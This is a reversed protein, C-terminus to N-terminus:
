LKDWASPSPFHPTYTASYGPEAFADNVAARWEQFHQSQFHADMDAQTRYIETLIFRTPDDTQQILEFRINGPEQTTLNGNQLTAAIFDNVREPKIRLFVNMIIM